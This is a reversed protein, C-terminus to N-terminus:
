LGARKDNAFERTWREYMTTLFTHLIRQRQQREQEQIEQWVKLMPSPGFESPKFLLPVGLEKAKDEINM